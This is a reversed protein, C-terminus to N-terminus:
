RMNKAVSLGNFYAEQDGNVSFTLKNGKQLCRFVFSTLTAATHLVSFQSASSKRGASTFDSACFRTFSSFGSTLMLQSGFTDPNEKFIFHRFPSMEASLNWWSLVVPLLKPLGRLLSVADKKVRESDM